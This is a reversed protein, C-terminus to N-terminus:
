DLRVSQPAATRDAAGFPQEGLVAYAGAAIAAILVCAALISKM